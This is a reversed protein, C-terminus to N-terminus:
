LTLSCPAANLIGVNYNSFSRFNRVGTYYDAGRFNSMNDM